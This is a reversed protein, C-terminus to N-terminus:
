GAAKIQEQVWQNDETMEEDSIYGRDLMRRQASHWVSLMDRGVIGLVGRYTHHWGSGLHQGIVNTTLLLALREPKMGDIRITYVTKEANKALALVAPEIVSRCPGATGELFAKVEEVTLRVEYPPFVRWLWKQM